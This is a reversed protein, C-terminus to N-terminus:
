LCGPFQPSGLEHIPNRSSFNKGSVIGSSGYAGRQMDVEIVSDDQASGRKLRLSPDATPKGGDRTRAAGRGIANERSWREGDM